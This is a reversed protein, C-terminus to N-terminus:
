FTMTKPPASFDIEPLGSCRLLWNTVAETNNKRARPELGYGNSHVAGHCLPCLTVLNDLTDAGGQEVPIAHHAILGQKATWVCVTCRRYDVM